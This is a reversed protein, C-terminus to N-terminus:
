SSRATASRSSSASARTSAASTRTWASPASRPCSCPTRISRRSCATSRAAPHAEPQRAGRRLQEAGPVPGPLVPRAPQAPRGHGPPRPRASASSCPWRWPSARPPRALHSPDTDNFEGQPHLDRRRHAIACGASANSPPNSRRAGGRSISASGIDARSDTEFLLQIGPGRRGGGGRGPTSRISVDDSFGFESIDTMVYYAGRPRFTKFGAAELAPVLFDRRQRYDEALNAYYDASLKLGGGRGGSATCSGGRDSLRSSEPDGALDGAARPLHRDALGHRSYTKSIGSITVTRERMGDLSALSIHEAGDYVIHEYIEDTIAVVDWQRCLAAIRELESRTFVKGTPNNPTNIVIAKTRNSFAQELEEPDFSWDPERLQVFRPVAGCLIADPGYNEYFPEFVIVEDGPNVVALM